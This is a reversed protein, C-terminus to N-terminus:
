FSEAIVLRQLQKLPSLLQSFSPRKSPDNDWCSLIISAVVPDVEKPIDLRRNQFGVAGVVQMPNLGSWPVRMTALEWLIVGFSYVDCMENAPENRLVEPAMWEPTGATSKSSLFTHHKLRSMGFDSVKVVWNKDVLLNPSKLDRHVITPHSAHLYNMGKAVDLAMKLRRTEDVKSNPRHLLRFLSGRPLYETLISLNPPQTVYGLFLVVNPHRLRSMIRVECKFQELAVGSLDQDLFKKVAVETGNWDAHYVEGYSGLGIREGIQLDEWPIEYEAVDDMVSSITKISSCSLKDLNASSSRSINVLSDEGFRQGESSIADLNRVIAETNEVPYQVDEYSALSSYETASGKPLSQSTQAVLLWGATDQDELSTTKSMEMTNSTDHSNQGSLLGTPLLAGGELLLDHLNQTFQPDVGEPVSYRSTDHVKMQQSTDDSRGDGSITHQKLPNETHSRDELHPSTLGLVSSRDSSNGGTENRSEYVGNVQELAICLEAVSEEIADSSLQSNNSDQFQSASIESPILTGPAGMLDVIYEASDFDIKVFNIAGEDTGTYCIGKVLKCPLNVRDALVKFLLSRHRSLGIRLSGLPLAISNLEACLDRSKKNWERNMRDADEVPGGMADVVLTAIEQVLEASAVGGRKARSQAAIAMVQGELRKLVPDRERNVLIAVYAVDRGVPVARLSSFSPFKVQFGPDLPAGCVDYFGDWLKEDYNVVNHNWYRASLAEMTTRDGPAAAPGGLSIREAARMQVSDPDVLGAPDSASIALALRVHYEEELRTLSTEAGMGTAEPVAVAAAAPAPQPPEAVAAAVVPPPPPLPSHAPRRQRPRHHDSSPAAATGAGAGSLHLKRLLHKMRSM